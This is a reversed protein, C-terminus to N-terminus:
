TGFVSCIRSLYLSRGRDTKSTQWSYADDYCQYRTTWERGRENRTYAALLVFGELAHKIKEVIKM